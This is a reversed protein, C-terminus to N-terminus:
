TMFFPATCVLEVREKIILDKKQNLISGEEKKENNL